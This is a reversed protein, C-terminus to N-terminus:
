DVSVLLLIYSSVSHGSRIISEAYRNFWEQQMQSKVFQQDVSANFLHHGIALLVGGLLCAVMVSIAKKSGM